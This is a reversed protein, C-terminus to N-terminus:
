PKEQQLFSASLCDLFAIARELLEALELIQAMLHNKKDAVVSGCNSVRAPLLGFSFAERMLLGM